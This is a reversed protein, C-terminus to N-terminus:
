RGPEASEIAMAEVTYAQVLEEDTMGEHDTFGALARGEAWKYARAVEDASSGCETMKTRFYSVVSIREPAEFVIEKVGDAATRERMPQLCEDHSPYFLPSGIGEGCVNCTMFTNGHWEHADMLLLDGDQMDIGVRYEPFTFIGGTYSGRRLVALTSFGEDLDGKDTHVGTPYSNNVTITTFVTDAIRWDPHTKRIYSQQAEYRDPVQEAFHGDVAQFLPFLSRFQENHSNTWATLRCYQAQAMPDFGGVLASSVNPAITRTSGAFTPLRTGGSALGRNRTVVTRISHLVDYMSDLMDGSLAGPLYRALLKGDGRAVDTPGTLLVDLDGPTLVKGKLAALREANLKSRVRISTLPRDYM